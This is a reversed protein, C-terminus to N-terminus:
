GESTPLAVFRSAEDREIQVLVAKRGAKVAAAVANEVDKGTKVKQSNVARIIDGPRIGREEAASDPEVDTVVLGDGDEAPTVKLGFQADMTSSQSGGRAAAVTEVGPMEALTVELTETAGDRWVTVDVENGPAFGAILRALEKPSAVPKDDVAIIIDGSRIGAKAAPEGEQADAVLAGKEEELGVSEAIDKSVPQIQVGLWGREVTGDEILDGVVQKAVSAPIAFAIGVNGGSPSFIATNIGVVEGSLNFAPGGSNGRTV